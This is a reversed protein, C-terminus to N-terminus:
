INMHLLIRSLETIGRHRHFARWKSHIEDALSICCMLSTVWCGM